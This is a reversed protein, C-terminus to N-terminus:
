SRPPGPLRRPQNSPQDGLGGAGNAGLESVREGLSAIEDVGPCVREEVGWEGFAFAPRLREAGRRFVGLGGRGPPAKGARDGSVAVAVPDRVDGRESRRDLVVCLLDARGAGAGREVPCAVEPSPRPLLRLPPTS